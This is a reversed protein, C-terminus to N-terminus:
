QAPKLSDILADFAPKWHGITKDPGTLKFQWPGNPGVIVAALMRFGPKISDGGMMSAGSYTGGVDLTMVILEGIKKNDIKATESSPKGDPQQFQEIWRKINADPSGGIGQFIALEGAEADGEAAPLRFQAARMSSAPTEATWQPDIQFSLSAATATTGDIIPLSAPASAPVNPEQIPPHNAPLQSSAIELPVPTDSVTKDVLQGQNDSCSLATIALLILWHKNKM